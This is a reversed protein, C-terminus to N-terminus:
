THKRYGGVTSRVKPMDLDIHMNNNNKQIWSFAMLIQSDLSKKMSSSGSGPPTSATLSIALISLYTKIICKVWRMYLSNQSIAFQFAGYVPKKAVDDQFTYQFCLLFLHSSMAFYVRPSLRESSLDCFYQTSFIFLYCNEDLSRKLAQIKVLHHITECLFM